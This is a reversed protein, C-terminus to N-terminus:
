PQLAPIPLSQIQIHTLQISTPNSLLFLLLHCVGSWHLRLIAAVRRRMAVRTAAGMVASLSLSLAAVGAEDEFGGEFGREFAGCLGREGDGDGGGGGGGGGGRWVM